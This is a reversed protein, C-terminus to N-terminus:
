QSFNVNEKGFLQELYFGINAVGFKDIAKNALGVLGKPAEEIKKALDRVAEKKELKKIFDAQDKSEEGIQKLNKIDALVQEQMLVSSEMGNVKYSLLRAKIKDFETLNETPIKDLETQANEKNFKNIQKLRQIIKNSEYDYRAKGGVPKTFKYELDIQKVIGRKLAAQELRKIREEIEPFANDLQEM